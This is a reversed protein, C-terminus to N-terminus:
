RDWVIWLYGEFAPKYLWTWHTGNALGAGGVVERSYSQGQDSEREKPSDLAEAWATLGSEEARLSTLRGQERVLIEDSSGGAWGLFGLGM